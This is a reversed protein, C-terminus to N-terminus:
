IKRNKNKFVTILSRDLWDKHIGLFYTHAFIACIVGIFSGYVIDVFFHQSLYVRSFAVSCAIILLIFKMFRNKILLALGFFLAFATASHGSPFSNLYHYKLGSIVHIDIGSDEFLKMPRPSGSFITHKLIQVFLSSLLFSGLFILGYRIKHFLSIVGLGALIIGNGLITWVKMFSDMSSSHYQNIFIHTGVRGYIASIIVGSLFLVLFFYLLLINEKNLKEM